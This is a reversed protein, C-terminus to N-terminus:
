IKRLFTLQSVLKEKDYLCIGSGGLDRGGGGGGGTDQLIKKLFASQRLSWSM